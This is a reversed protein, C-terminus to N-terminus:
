LMLQREEADRLLPSHVRMAHSSIGRLARPLHKAVEDIRCDFRAAIDNLQQELEPTWNVETDKLRAREVSKFRTKVANETRSTLHGKIQAWKNGLKDHLKILLDDEDKTWPGRNIAPDLNLSWRERCQKATRGPVLVAVEAWNKPQSTSMLKILLDDEDKSWMGKVLGPQLVKKWRQLCQVHDRGEVMRAIAKWNQGGHKAVAVRLEEDQQPTWRRKLKNPDSSGAAFAEPSDPADISCAEDDSELADNLSESEEDSEGDGMESQEVKVKPASPTSPTSTLASDNSSSVSSSSSGVSSSSATSTDVRLEIPKCSEVKVVVVSLALPPPSQESPMMDPSSMTKRGLMVKSRPRKSVLAVGALDLSSTRRKNSSGSNKMAPSVKSPNSRSQSAELARRQAPTIPVPVAERPVEDEEEEAKHESEDGGGGLSGVELLDMRGLDSSDLWSDKGQLLFEDEGAGGAFLQRELLPMAADSKKLRNLEDEKARLEAQLKRITADKSQRSSGLLAACSVAVKKDLPELSLELPTINGLPTETGGFLDDLGMMDEDLPVLDCHPAFLSELAADGEECRM